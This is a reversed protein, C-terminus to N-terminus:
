FRVRIGTLYQNEDRGYNDKIQAEITLSFNKSIHYALEGTYKAKANFHSTSKLREASLNISVPSLNLLAGGEVGASYSSNHPLFGGLLLSNNVMAYLYFNDDVELTKGMGFGANTIYGEDKTSPNFAREVNVNVKFSLPNFMEDVPSLSKIRVLDLNQFVLKNENYFRLQTDLFVIEAGTLLGYNDDTLTHYAPHFAISEFSNGNRLGWGISVRKSKHSKSPNNGITLEKLQDQEKYNSRRKLLILSRKRFTKLDVEHKVLEYQLFQYATEIVGVSETPTLDKLPYNSDKILKLYNKKQLKNMNKYKYRIKAQRSPRYNISKVLNKRSTIAKITDLPIAHFPFECSLNLSPRVADLIELLIYSCNKSFFFYRAMNHGLEWVHAVFLDLEENTFDLNYEWIDRNEIHNYTNIVDYYPKVTFTGFYGGTLGLVAFIVPNTKKEDVNAGYNIGHALLQTGKRKTDIRFLTHGFMSSPNNMYADTFLISVGAPQIDSYFKNLEKCKPFPKLSFHKALLKYRAPFLCKKKTDTSNFLKITAKLEARPNYKGNKSLFFSETDMSSQYNGFLNKKYHVMSLWSPSVSFEDISLSKEVQAFTTQAHILIFLLPFLLCFRM